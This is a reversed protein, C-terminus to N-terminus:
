EYVDRNLAATMVDGLTGVKIHIDRIANMSIQAEEFLDSLPMDNPVRFHIHHDTQETLKPHILPPIPSSLILSVTKSSYEKLMNQTTDIRGLRGHDLIGIQDCLHEAEELYHTTLLISLNEKKLEQIFDWLSTRLEIDVGATPEDLLLLKPKHLLAKIILLRRKMGGSLQNVLKKKHHFLHLKDLLYDIYKRDHPIGFYAAHYKLIEEVSFFGHNVLEQPVFGIYSKALRPNKKVNIGFVEITGESFSQLTVISSIITTKGAGNPGLLGFVEGKQIEFSVDEVAVLKDYRKTLHEIVLPTM